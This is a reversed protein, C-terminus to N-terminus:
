ETAAPQVEAEAEEDAAASPGAVTHQEITDIRYRRSEDDFELKAEEGPKKGLFAQTQIVM